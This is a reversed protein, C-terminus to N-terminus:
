VVLDPDRDWRGDYSGAAKQKENKVLFYTSVWFKDPQRYRKTILPPLNCVHM